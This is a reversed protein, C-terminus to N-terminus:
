YPRRYYRFASTLMTHVKGSLVTHTFHRMMFPHLRPVKWLLYVALNVATIGYAVRTCDTSTFWVRLVSTYIGGVTSRIFHPVDTRQAFKTFWTDKM